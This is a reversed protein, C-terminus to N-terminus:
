LIMSFDCVSRLTWDNPNRGLRRFFKDDFTKVVNIQWSPVSLNNHRGLMKLHSTKRREIWPLINTSEHAQKNSVGSLIKAKDTTRDLRFMSTINSSLSYPRISLTRIGNQIGQIRTPWCHSGILQQINEVHLTVRMIRKIDKVGKPVCALASDYYRLKLPFM